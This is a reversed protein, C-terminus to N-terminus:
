KVGGKHTDRGYKAILLAEAMGDSDKKCRPTPLLSVCPFTERALHISEDKDKSLGFHKKWVKPEVKEYKFGLAILIGQIKGFGEGFSFTSSVGQKPMAHVNEITVITYAPDLASLQSAYEKYDCPIVTVMGDELIALGGRMGPDVGVYVMSM